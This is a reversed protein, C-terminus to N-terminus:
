SDLMFCMFVADRKWEVPRKGNLQGLTVRRKHGSNGSQVTAGQLFVNLYPLDELPFGRIQSTEKWSKSAKPRFRRVHRNFVGLWVRIGHFDQRTSGPDQWLGWNSGQIGIIQRNEDCYFGFIIKVGGKRCSFFWRPTKESYTEDMKDFRGSIPPLKKIYSIQGSQGFRLTQCSQKSWFTDPSRHPFVAWGPKTWVRSRAPIKILWAKKRM